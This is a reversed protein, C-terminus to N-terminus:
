EMIYNVTIDTSALVAGSSNASRIHIWWTNNQLSPACAYTGSTTWACSIIGDSITKGTNINGNPSTQGSKTLIERKKMMQYGM